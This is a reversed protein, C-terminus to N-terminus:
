QAMEEEFSSNKKPLKLRSSKQMALFLRVWHSIYYVFPVDTASLTQYILM